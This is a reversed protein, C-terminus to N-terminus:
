LKPKNNILYMKAENVIVLVFRYGGQSIQEMVFSRAM